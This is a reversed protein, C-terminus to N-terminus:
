SDGIGAGKTLFSLDYPDNSDAATISRILGLLSLVKYFSTM